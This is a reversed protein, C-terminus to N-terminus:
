AAVPEAVPHAAIWELLQPRAERGHETKWRHCAGCLVVGNAVTSDSKRGTAHSARVHDLEHAGKHVLVPWDDIQFGVCGGDRAWIARRVRPPWETGRSPKLPTYRRLM